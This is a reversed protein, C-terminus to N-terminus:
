GVNINVSRQGLCMNNQGLYMYKDSIPSVAPQTQICTDNSANTINYVGHANQFTIKLKNFWLILSALM